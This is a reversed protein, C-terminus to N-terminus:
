PHLLVAILLLVPVGVIVPNRLPRTLVRGVSLPRGSTSDLVALPTPTFAIRQLVLVAAIAQPGDIM